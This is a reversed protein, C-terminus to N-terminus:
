SLKKIIQYNFLKFDKNYKNNVYNLSENNYYKM